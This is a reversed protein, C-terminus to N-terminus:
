LSRYNIEFSLWNTSVFINIKFHKCTLVYNICLPRYEKNFFARFTALFLKNFTRQYKPQELPSLINKCFYFM